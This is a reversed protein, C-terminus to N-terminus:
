SDCRIAKFMSSLCRILGTFLWDWIPDASAAERNKVFTPLAEALDPGPWSDSTDIGLMEGLRDKGTLTAQILDLSFAILTLRETELVQV